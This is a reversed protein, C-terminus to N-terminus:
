SLGTKKINGTATKPLEDTIQVFKPVM